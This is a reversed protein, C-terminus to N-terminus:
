PSQADNIIIPDVWNTWRFYKKKQADTMAGWLEYFKAKVRYIVVHNPIKFNTLYYAVGNSLAIGNNVDVTQVSPRWCAPDVEEYSKSDQAQDIMQQCGAICRFDPATASVEAPTLRKNVFCATVIWKEFKTRDDETAERGLWLPISDMAAAIAHSIQENTPIFVTSLFSESRMNWYPLGESTYRDMLTNRASMVSDYTTNGMKDVGTPTSSEKDFYTEEYREVLSVFTSYDPGLGKVLQYVSKRIPIVGSVYYIYGNDAKIKKVLKYDDLYTEGDKVYVWVNKGLRTVLGFENTLKTPDISIDSVCNRAFSADNGSIRKAMAENDCVIFTYGKNTATEKYMGQTDLVSDIATLEPQSKIYSEIDGSWIIFDKSVMKARSYHSDWEDQCSLLSGMILTCGIYTLLKLTRM